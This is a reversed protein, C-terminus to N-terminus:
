HHLHWLFAMSSGSMFFFGPLIQFGLGSSLLLGVMDPTLISRYVWSNLVLCLACHIDPVDTLSWGYSSVRDSHLGCTSAGHGLLKMDLVRFRIITYSACFVGQIRSLPIKMKLEFTLRWLGFTLLQATCLPIPEKDTSQVRCDNDRSECRKTPWSWNKASHNKFSEEKCVAGDREKCKKVASSITVSKGSRAVM